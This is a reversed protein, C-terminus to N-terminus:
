FLGNTPISLLFLHMLCNKGYLGRHFLMVLPLLYFIVPLIQAARLCSEYAEGVASERYFYLESNIISVSSKVYMVYKIPWTM